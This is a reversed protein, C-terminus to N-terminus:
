INLEAEFEFERVYEVNDVFAEFTGKGIKWNDVGALEFYRDDDMDEDDFEPETEVDDIDSEAAEFNDDAIGAINEDEMVPEDEFSVEEETWEDDFSENLTFTNDLKAM